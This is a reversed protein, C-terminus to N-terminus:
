IRNKRNIRIHVFNIGMNTNLKDFYFGNLLNIKEDEVKIQVEKIEDNCYTWVLQELTKRGESELFENTLNLVLIDNEINYDIIKTMTNICTNYNNKFSGTQMTLIDFKQSIIDEELAEVSANVAVLNDFEDCMYVLVKDSYVQNNIDDTGSKGFIKKYTEKPIM